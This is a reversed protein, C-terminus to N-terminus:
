APVIVTRCALGVTSGSGAANPVYVCVRHSGPTAGITAAFGHDPGYHPYATAIDPRAADALVSLGQADVYVHV